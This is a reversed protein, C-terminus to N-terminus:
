GPGSDGWPADGPRAHGHPQPGSPRQPYPPRGYPPGGPPSRRSQHGSPDYPPAQPPPAGFQSPPGFPAPAVPPPAPRRRRVAVLAATALLLLAILAVGVLVLGSGIGGGSSPKAGLSPAQTLDRQQRAHEAKWRDLAAYVPNPASAPVRATLAKDAIVLGYGTQDDRGKPGVDRATNVLRQVVERAPMGPNKARILAVIGSTLATALSTGYGYHYLHGNKGISGIQAGPAAVAVYDKRQTGAWPRLGAAQIAGVAVVGPCGAPFTSFNNRDGSNGSAAVLVADHETAYIVADEVVAPCPPSGTWEASISMSIVKAGHDAAYRIGEAIRDPDDSITAVPLVKAEPAVGVWGTARGQAVILSAMGTGHGTGPDHDVMGRDAAREFDKGPLVSGKLDPLAANVGTDIVAVTVGRGQTLPWVNRQLSWGSFWWEERHPGPAAVAPGAALAATLAVLVPAAVGISLWRARRM